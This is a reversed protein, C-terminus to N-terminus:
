VSSILCMYFFGVQSCISSNVLLVLLANVKFVYTKDRCVGGCDTATEDQNLIGDSCSEAKGNAESLRRMGTTTRISDEVRAGRAQEELERRLRVEEMHRELKAHARRKEWKKVPKPKELPDELVRQASVSEAAQRARIAHDIRDDQM